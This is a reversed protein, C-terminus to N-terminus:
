PQAGAGARIESSTSAPWRTPASRGQLPQVRCSTFRPRNSAALMPPRYGYGRRQAGGDVKGQVCVRLGRQRGEFRKGGVCGQATRRPQHPLGQLRHVPNWVLRGRQFPDAGQQGPRVPRHVLQPAPGRDHPLRRLGRRHPPRRQPRPAPVEPRGNRLRFTSLAVRDRPPTSARPWSTSTTKRSSAPSMPSCARATWRRLRSKWWSCAPSPRRGNWRWSGTRSTGSTRVHQTCDTRHVSVGSGRTVFGVISGAARPHLLPGAEGARRGRRPGDRRLRLLPSPKTCRPPITVEAADDEAADNGGLSEVLKEVVSQASTHGDGVAAYLGSIDTYKFSRRGRGALADHTMLRQLPLNQKRM